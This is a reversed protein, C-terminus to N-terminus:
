YIIKDRQSLFGYLFFSKELQPGAIQCRKAITNNDGWTHRAM